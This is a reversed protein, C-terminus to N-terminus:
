SKGAMSGLLGIIGTIAAWWMASIGTAEEVAGTLAAIAAIIGCGGGVIYIAGLMGQGYQSALQIGIVIAMAALAMAAVCLIVGIIYLLYTWFTGDKGIECLIGGIVSLMASLMVYMMAKEPLGKWPSVDEPTTPSTITPDPTNGGGGGTNTNDV